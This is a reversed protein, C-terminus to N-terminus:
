DDPQINLEEEILEVLKVLQPEVGNTQFEIINTMTTLRHLLINRYERSEFVDRNSAKSKAPVLDYPPYVREPFGPWRSEKIYVRGLSGHSQLFPIVTGNFYDSDRLIVERYATMISMSSGIHRRLEGSSIVDLANGKILSELVPANAISPDIYWTVDNLLRDIEDDTTDASSDASANYMRRTADRLADTYIIFEDVLSVLEQAEVYLSALIVKEETARQRDEWWADIAFALLISGAIAVAEVAIRKWHINQSDTM